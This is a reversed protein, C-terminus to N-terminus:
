EHPAAPFEIGLMECMASVEANNAAIADNWQRAMAEIVAQVCDECMRVPTEDGTFDASFTVTGGPPGHRGMCVECNDENM